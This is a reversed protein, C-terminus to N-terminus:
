FEGYAGKAQALSHTPQHADTASSVGFNMYASVAQQVKERHQQSVAAMALRRSEEARKATLTDLQSPQHREIRQGAISNSTVANIM